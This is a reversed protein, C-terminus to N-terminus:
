LGAKKLEDLLAPLNRNEQRLSAILTYWDKQRGLRKYLERVVTTYNASEAYNDRGRRDILSKIRDLYLQIAQEPRSEEAVKAVTIELSYPYEWRHRATM